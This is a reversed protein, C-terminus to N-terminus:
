TTQKRAILNFINFKKLLLMILINILKKLLLM